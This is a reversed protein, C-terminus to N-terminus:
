LGPYDRRAATSPGYGAPQGGSAVFARPGEKQPNSMGLKAWFYAGQPTLVLSTDSAPSEPAPPVHGEAQFHSIVMPRHSLSLVGGYSQSPVLAHMDGIGRLVPCFRVLITLLYLLTNCGRGSLVVVMYATEYLDYMLM